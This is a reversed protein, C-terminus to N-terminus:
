PAFIQWPNDSLSKVEGASLARNFITANSSTGTFWQNGTPLVAYIYVHAGYVLTDINISDWAWTTSAVEVGNLYAKVAISDSSSVNSKTCTLALNVWGYPLSSVTHSLRTTESGGRAIFVVFGNGAQLSLYETTSEKGLTILNGTTSSDLKVSCFLTHGQDPVDVISRSYFGTSTFKNAIGKDTPVTYVSGHTVNFLTGKVLERGSSSITTLLRKTLPNGWDIGVPVQPQSTWPIRQKIVPM